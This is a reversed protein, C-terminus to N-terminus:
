GYEGEDESEDEDETLTHDKTKGKKQGGKVVKNGSSKALPAKTRVPKADDGSRSQDELDMLISEEEKKKAGGKMAQGSKKWALPVPATDDDSAVEKYEEESIPEEETHEDLHSLAIQGILTRIATSAEHIPRKKTSVIQKPPEQETHEPTEHEILEPAEQEVSEQLDQTVLQQVELEV